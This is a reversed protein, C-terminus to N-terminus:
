IIRQPAQKYLMRFPLIITHAKRWTPIAVFVTRGALLAYVTFLYPPIIKDAIKRKDCFTRIIIYKNILENEIVNNKM